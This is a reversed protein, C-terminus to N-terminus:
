ADFKVAAGGGKGDVERGKKGSGKIEEESERRGNEETREEPM